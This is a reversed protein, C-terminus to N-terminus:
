FNYRVDIAFLETSGGYSYTPQGSVPLKQAVRSTVIGHQAVVDVQVPEALIELPDDFKVGIGGSIAHTTGDLINSLGNQLPVPTPRLFYGARASFRVSPRWEVGVRPILIDEFGPPADQSDLALAQDLGLGRVLDGNLRVKVQVAPNPAASWRAYELDGTLTLEDTPDFRVGLTFEHPTYFTVARVDLFLTGLDGLVINTPLDLNLQLSSRYSFGFTLNPLPRLALGAVPSAKTVLEATLDRRAFRKNFLDINFEIDGGFDSLFQAGVGFSFWEVPKVALGAFIQVRDPSSEYLYWSASTPEVGQVRILNHVPLQIGVGLAVKNQVKGAFPYVLGISYSAFDPPNSVKLQSTPDDPTVSLNPKEYFFGFGVNIKQRDVLLAPNYFTATFDQADAVQAGGMAIGRSGFGYTDFTSARAVRPALLLGLLAVALLKRM